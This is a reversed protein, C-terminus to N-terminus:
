LNVPKRTEVVLSDGEKKVSVIRETYTKGERGVIYRAYGLEGRRAYYEVLKKMQWYHTYSDDLVVSMGRPTLSNKLVDEFNKKSIPIDFVKM